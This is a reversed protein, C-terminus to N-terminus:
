TYVNENGITTISTEDIYWSLTVIDTIDIDVSINSKPHFIILGRQGVSQSQRPSYATLMNNEKLSM